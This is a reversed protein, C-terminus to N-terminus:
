QQGDFVMRHERAWALYSALGQRLDYSPVFGFEARARSVDLANRDGVHAVEVAGEGPLLDGSIFAPELSHLTELVERLTYAPGSSVNYLDHELEAALTLSCWIQGADAAHTYCRRNAQDKVRVPQNDMCARVLTYIVSPSTRTATAREMPGYISSMRGSVTSLGFLTKYRRLIQEAALKCILYLGGAHVPSNETIVAGRDALSAYVGTSSILVFREANAQRAVELLGVTGMLNVNLIRQPNSREIEATPTIAAGHVFRRVDYRTVLDLLGATDLVDATVFLVRNQLEGLFARYGASPPALDLAVVPEGANALAHVIHACAFGTAGTVLTTM